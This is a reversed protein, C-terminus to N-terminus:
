SARSITPLLVFQSVPVVCTRDGGATTIWVDYLYRRAVMGSTDSAAITFTLTNGTLSGTKVFGLPVTLALPSRKVTLVYTGALTAPTGDPYVLEVSITASVGIPLEVTQANYSPVAPAFRRGDNVVGLLAIVLM